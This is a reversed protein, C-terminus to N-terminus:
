LGPTSTSSSDFMYNIPSEGGGLEYVVTNNTFGRHCASNKPAIGVKQATEEHISITVTYDYCGDDYTAIIQSDSYDQIEWINVRADLLPPAKSYKIEDTNVSAIAEYCKNSSRMCRIQVSNISYKISRLQRNWRPFGELPNNGLDARLKIADINKLIWTGEIEEIERLPPKKLFSLFKPHPRLSSISGNGGADAPITIVFLAVLFMAYSTLKLYRANKL